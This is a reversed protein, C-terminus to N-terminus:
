NEQINIITTFKDKLDASISFFDGYENPGTNTVKTTASVGDVIVYYSLSSGKLNIEQKNNDYAYLRIFVNKDELGQGRWLIRPKAGSVIKGSNFSILTISETKIQKECAGNECGYPCAYQRAIDPNNGCYVEALTVGDYRCGDTSSRQTGNEDTWTITGKTYYNLGGDSDTCVLNEGAVISFYNDSEDYITPNSADEIKVTYNGLIAARGFHHSYSGNNDTIVGIDCRTEVQKAQAYSEPTMCTTIKVNDISGFSKWTITYPSGQNFKEGGNPSLVTIPKSIQTCVGKYDVGIGAEKARCDNSYTKGDKGCVPNYEALCDGGSVGCGYIKNLRTKTTEGVFGTGRTLGWVALIEAHYKEQFGVVASSTYIGFTGRPDRDVEIFGEKELATQLAEVESGMDGYKLSLNFTHCWSDGGGVVDALQAQLAVILALLASIQVQLENATIAQATSININFFGVVLMLFVALFIAKSLNSPLSM